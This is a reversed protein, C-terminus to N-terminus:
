RVELKFYKPIVKELSPMESKEIDFLVGLETKSFNTIKSSKNAYNLWPSLNNDFHFRSNNGGTKIEVSVPNNLINKKLLKRVVLQIRRHEGICIATHLRGANMEYWIGNKQLPYMIQSEIDILFSQDGYINLHYRDDIDAHQTYCSPSSMVIIRAEGKDGPLTKLIEKWVTNEFDMSIEWPDYFPDGTPVNLIYKGSNQYDFAVSDLLDIDTKYQTPSLM